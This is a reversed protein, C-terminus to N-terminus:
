ILACFAGYLEVMARTDMECYRKLADTKKEKEGAQPSGFCLKWWILSAQDGQHVELDQYSLAPVMVPLVQKISWSGKFGPHLYFGLRVPDGLDYIRQNIGELFEAYEPHLAAMEINRSMEFSKNWVLVTGLDGIDERLQALLPLSPDQCTLSLHERHIVRADPAELLHLSYQFVIQQQPHYGTYQPIASICTEYDLFYLPFHLKALEARLAAQDLHQTNTRAREVVLRQKENLDISAPIQRAELIGADLLARKKKAHLLPVDFISFDPLEPFCTEPCPCQKPTLCGALGAPDAEGAAALASQRVGEVGPLLEIVQGTVDERIFLEAPDLDDERLYEKNLHLLYYHGCRLHRKLIAAQFTVDLLDTKDLATSSKIEFLDSVDEGPKYLLADVRAEFAGDTFTVQWSLRGDPCDAQVLQELYARALAEVQYGQEGTLRNMESLPVTLRDHRKAWVHRPAECYLLFDSKTIAPAPTM